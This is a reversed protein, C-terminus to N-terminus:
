KWKVRLKNPNNDQVARVKPQDNSKNTMNDQRPSMNINKSDKAASRIADARGQEYFHNAIKDANKAAFMARHYGQADGIAGDKDLFEGVFNSMDSQYEKVKKADDVKFRYKNEGVKFDFGKFKDSFVDDTKKLFTQQLNNHDENKKLSSQYYEMAKAYEPDVSEQKRLKLDAYYKERSTKFHNQANYLEEKFALQKAKVDSPDDTEGDYGFNKNFLFDVDNADLHPKTTRYYERLLDVNDMKSVDRNLNVYDEVTGGTEEMFKVLKDVNEPLVQELKEQKQEVKESTSPTIIEKVEEEEKENILELPGDSEEVKEEKSTDEKDSEVRVEGDVEQSDGTREGVPIKKTEREQIADEEKEKFKDLDVKVVGDVEKPSYKEDVEGSEVAKELVEAEREQASPAPTNDDVAKVTFQEKDQTQEEM